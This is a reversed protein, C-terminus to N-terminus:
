YLLRTYLTWRYRYNQSHDSQWRKLLNKPMDWLLKYWYARVWHLRIRLNAGILGFLGRTHINSWQSPGSKYSIVVGYGRHLSLRPWSEEALTKQYIENPM